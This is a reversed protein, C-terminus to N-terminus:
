EWGLSATVIVNRPLGPEFAVPVGSVVDPNLFASGVYSRGLLNNVGVSGRLGLGGGLAIPRDLALTLNIVGYGNVKVTNADDAYYSSSGQWVVQGRVGRLVPPAYSVGASWTWDPVGVVRNGGYDATSGPNGYHVSDVVYDLYRHHNYSFAGQLALPGKAARGGLEAGARGARGATLYFRGGRYPVIENRVDTYYVAADYNVEWPHLGDGLVAVQKTGLEYSTSRIPELLPNIAFVSDQGFTGAPDTENGTPAEVGGGVSAYFAQTPTRRFNIGLKPSVRTFSRTASLQRALFDEVYYAINDYRAGASVSWRAGFSLEEQVFVGFNNAGERKNTRLEDGRSGGPGLSYFLIAGDQYAEDLGVSLVSAANPGVPSRYRYIASGGVHYRTFDRFTGRESRQLFKPAAFLTTRLEHRDGPHLEYVVGLRGLRNNRGENRSAYVPNAQTPDEEMQAETLPGPIEYENYGGTAFVGLRNRPGVPVSVTANILLREGESHDRWGDTGAWTITGGVDGAGPQTGATVSLRRFGFSGVAPDFSAYPRTAHRLTSVSVVGGAANGWVASANSRIVEINSVASLDILDFGTRGDPETEPFGDLVVRVGRSTGANSRDGAGRAGFGRIVLRVDSWGARSQALVGPVFTLADELGTGRKGQLETGKIETIALPQELPRRTSRTATTTVDLTPLRLAISDRRARATDQQASLISGPLCALALVLDLGAARRPRFLALAPRQDPLFADADRSIATEGQDGRGRSEVGAGQHEGRPRHHPRHLDV